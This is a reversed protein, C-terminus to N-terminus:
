RCGPRNCCSIADTTPHGASPCGVVGAEGRGGFCVSFDHGVRMGRRRALTGRFGRFLGGCLGRRLGARVREDRDDGRDEHDGEEEEQDELLGALGLRRGDAERQVAEEAPQAILVLQHLDRDDEDHEARDHADQQQQDLVGGARALQVEPDPEDRAERQRDEREHQQPRVLVRQQVDEADRDHEAPRHEQEVVPRALARAVM